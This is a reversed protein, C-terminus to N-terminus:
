QSNIEMNMPRKDSLLRELKLEIEAQQELDPETAHLPQFPETDTVKRVAEPDIGHRACIANLAEDLALLYREWSVFISHMEASEDPETRRIILCWAALRRSNGQWHDLGWFASMNFFRDFWKQFEEDPCSYSKMPVASRVRGLELENTDTLYQFALAAREKNTLTEYLQNIRKQMNM